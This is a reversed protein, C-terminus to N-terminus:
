KELAATVLADEAIQGKAAAHLTVHAMPSVVVGNVEIEYPEGDRLDAFELANHVHKLHLHESIARALYQQDPSLDQVRGAKVAEHVLKKYQGVIMRLKSSKADDM